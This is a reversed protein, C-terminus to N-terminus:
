RLYAYPLIEGDNLGFTVAFLNSVERRVEAEKWTSNIAIKGTLGAETLRARSEGRPIPIAKNPNPAKLLCVINKDVIKQKTSANSTKRRKPPASVSCRNQLHSFASPLRM